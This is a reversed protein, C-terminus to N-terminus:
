KWPFYLLSIHVTSRWVVLFVQLLTSDNHANGEDVKHMKRMHLTLGNRNGVLKGCQECNVATELHNIKHDRMAKESYGKFDCLGCSRESKDWVRPKVQELDVNFICSLKM